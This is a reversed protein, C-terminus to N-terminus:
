KNNNQQKTTKYTTKNSAHDQKNQRKMRLCFLLVAFVGGLWKRSLPLLIISLLINQTM